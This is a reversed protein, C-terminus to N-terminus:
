RYYTDYLRQIDSAASTATEAAEASPKSRTPRFNANPQPMESASNKDLSDATSAPMVTVPPADADGQEPAARYLARDRYVVSRDRYGRRQQAKLDIDNLVAASPVTGASRLADLAFQVFQRETQAWRIILVTADAIASLRTTEALGLVPPLDIIVVAFQNKLDDILMSFRQIDRSTWPTQVPTSPVFRVGSQEEVAVAAQISCQGELYHKLTILNNQDLLRSVGSRRLDADVLVVKEGALAATRAFALAHTSKGEGTAASTIGLAVGTTRNGAFSSRTLDEM